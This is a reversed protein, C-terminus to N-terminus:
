VHLSIYWRTGREDAQLIAKGEHKSIRKKINGLGNGKAAKDKEFGNGDDNLVVHLTKNEKVLRMLFNKAGSYKAANNIIEKCVLYLDRRMEPPLSKLKANGMGSAHTFYIDTPTVTTITVNTYNEAGVQLRALKEEARIPQIWVSVSVLLLGFVKYNM